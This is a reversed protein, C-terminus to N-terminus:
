GSGVVLAFMIARTWTQLETISSFPIILPSACGLVRHVPSLLGGALPASEMGASGQSAARFFYMAIWARSFEMCYCLLFMRLSIAMYELFFMWRVLGWVVCVESVYIFILQFLFGESGQSPVCCILHGCFM